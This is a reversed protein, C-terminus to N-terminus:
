ANGSMSVVRFSYSLFRGYGAIRVFTDNLRDFFTALASALGHFGRPTGKGILKRMVLGLNFAGAHICLRKYINLHGRVQTRRLGGTEYAHAFSREVYEARLRQLRKGREGRIRRRNAYVAEKASADKKWNRRGRDPEAVYSHIRARKLMKMTHNSHYGRDAVVESLRTDKDVGVEKLSRDAQVLSWLLSGTDGDDGGCVQLAVLAQTDLDVTHEAKYGM